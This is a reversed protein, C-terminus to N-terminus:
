GLNGWLLQELIIGNEELKQEIMIGVLAGQFAYISTLVFYFDDM